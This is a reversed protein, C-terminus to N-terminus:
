KELNPYLIYLMNLTEQNLKKNNKYIKVLANAKKNENNRAYVAILEIIGNGFSPMNKYLSEFYTQAKKDDNKAKYILGRYYDLFPDKNILSDMKNVDELAKDYELRSFHIELFLIYMGPEAPYLNQYESLANKYASDNEIKATIQVHMIQFLKQKKLTDPLSEFKSLAKEYNEEAILKRIDSVSQAFDREGPQTDYYDGLQLFIDALSKSLNEGTLYIYMDAAKIEKGSHVLEIDHYNLGGDGFLRFILHQKGNKEYSKIFQYMGDRGLSKAIQDGMKRKQIQDPVDSLMRDTLKDNSAEKIRKKLTGADFINNFIDPNREKFSAELTKSFDIAEQRSVKNEKLLCGGTFVTLFLLGANLYQRM